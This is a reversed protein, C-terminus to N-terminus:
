RDGRSAGQMFDGMDRKQFDTDEPRDFRVRSSERGQIADIVQVFKGRLSHNLLRVVGFSAVAMLAVLMLYEVLTQGRSNLARRDEKNVFRNAV